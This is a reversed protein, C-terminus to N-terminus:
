GGEARPRAAGNRSPARRALGVGSIVVLAGLAHVWGIPEGLFLWSLALVEFPMLNVTLAAVAAPVVRIGRYFWIHSLTVLVAAYLVALAATVTLRPLTTWPRELLALPVLLVGAILYSGTTVVTPPFQRAVQRAYVSYVAWVSQSGLVVFDGPYLDLDLLARLSGRTVTLVVGASSLVIGLVNLKSLREGLWVASLLAVFIPGTAGVIAANVALTRQLGVYWLTTNGVLGTVALVLFARLDALTGPWYQYSRRVWWVLAFSALVARTASLTLPGIVELALKATIFNGAWIWSTVFLVLQAEREGLDRDSGGSAGGDARARGALGEERGRRAVEAAV